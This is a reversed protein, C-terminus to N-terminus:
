DIYEDFTRADFIPVNPDLRTAVQRIGGLAARPDGTTRVVMAMGQSLKIEIARIPNEDITEMFRDMSFNGRADRCGFYGTGIQWVLEGGFRHYPSM